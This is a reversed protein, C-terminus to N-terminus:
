QNPLYARYDSVAVGLAQALTAKARNYGYLAAIYNEDAVAVAQEAQVVELNDAVGARFRDQALTQEQHSMQEAHRAVSVQQQQSDLDLLTSRVQVGIAAKLDATRAEADHLQAEAQVREAALAGGNFVPLSITAGVQFIPHNSDLEHGITGYNGDLAVTPLRGMKAATVQLRASRVVAEAARYDPRTALAEAVAAEATPVALAAFPTRSTLTFTQALPLGIARALQLRQKALDNKAATLQQQQQDHQVQARVVALAGVTGARLMDQAQQLLSQATALEAAAARVRSQDAVSLLYQNAVALVVLNRVSDLNDRAATQLSGAARTHEIASLNVLPVEAAASAQFVNFPGVIPPFGPFSFGFAALNIKQRLEGASASVNPLLAALQSMRQARAQETESSALIPALNQRLGRQIAAELSLAVPQASVAGRPVGGATDAAAAGLPLMQVPPAVNPHAPPLGQAVAMGAALLVMSVVALSKSM